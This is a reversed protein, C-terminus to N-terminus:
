GDQKGAREFILLQEGESHVTLRKVSVEFSKVTALARLIQQEQRFLAQSLCGRETWMLNDLRLESERVGYTASYSNCGTGGSMNLASFDATVSDGLVAALSYAEGLEVLRWRTNSM